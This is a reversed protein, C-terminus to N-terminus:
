QTALSALLIRLILWAAFAAGFAKLTELMRRPETAIDAARPPVFVVLEAQGLTAAAEAEQKLGLTTVFTDRAIEYASRLEEFSTLQEPLAGGGEEGARQALENRLQAELSAIEGEIVPIRPSNRARERLARLTVTREAIQGSLSAIITSGISVEEDPSIIRNARRFTEIAARADDLEREARRYEREVYDLMETRAQESLSDVIRRLETVLAAGVAQADEPHFLSVSVTTIGTVADFRPSVAARWYGLLDELPAEPDYGRVRDGGDRALIARIPVHAEIDVLAQASALYDELIFSDGAFILGGGGGLMGGGGGGPMMAGGRVSYRVETVYRDAAVTYYYIGAFLTPAIVLAFFGIAAGLYSRPRISAAVPM